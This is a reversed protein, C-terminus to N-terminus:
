LLLATITYASYTHELIFSYIDPLDFAFYIVTILACRAVMVTDNGNRTAEYVDDRHVDSAQLNPPHISPSLSVVPFQKFEKFLPRYRRSM